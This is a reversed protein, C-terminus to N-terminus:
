LKGRILKFYNDLSGYSWGWPRLYSSLGKFCEDNAKFCRPAFYCGPRPKYTYSTRRRGKDIVVEDSRHDCNSILAQTYPHKSQKVEDAEGYEVVRGLYM